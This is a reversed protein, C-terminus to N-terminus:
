SSKNNNSQYARILEDYDTEYDPDINDPIDNTDAIKISTHRLKQIGEKDILGSQMLLREFIKMRDITFAMMNKATQEFNTHEEQEKVSELYSDYSLVM